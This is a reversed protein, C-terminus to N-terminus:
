LTTCTGMSTNCVPATTDGIQTDSSQTSIQGNSGVQVCGGLTTTTANIVNWCAMTSGNTGSAIMAGPQANLTTNVNDNDCTAFDNVVLCANFAKVINNISGKIANVKASQQYSNYAPIAVAALVGIIAVM